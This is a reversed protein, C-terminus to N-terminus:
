ETQNEAEGKTKQAASDAAQRYSKLIRINGKKYRGYNKYFFMM